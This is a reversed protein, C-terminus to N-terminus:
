RQSELEPHAELAATTRTRCVECTIDEVAGVTLVSLPARSADGKGPVLTLRIGCATVNDPSLVDLCHLPDSM